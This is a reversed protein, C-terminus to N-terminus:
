NGLQLVQDIDVISLVFPTELQEKLNTDKLQSKSIQKKLAMKRHVEQQHHFQHAPVKPYGM